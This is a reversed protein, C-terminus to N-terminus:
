KQDVPFLNQAPEAKEWEALTTQAKALFPDDPRTLHVFTRLAGRAAPRDGLKELTLALGYYANAQTSRLNIATQFFDRAAPLEERGLLAFGMNVHAEPLEPRRQLVWHLATVAHDFQQAHLMMAGQFFHQRIELDESTTADQIWTEPDKAAPDEPRQISPPPSLSTKNQHAPDLLLFNAFFPPLRNWEPLGHIISGLVAIGLLTLFITLRRRPQFIATM